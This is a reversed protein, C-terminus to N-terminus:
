PQAPASPCSEPVALTILVTRQVSSFNDDSVLMLNDTGDTSRYFTIGEMNDAGEFFTMKGLTAPKMVEGPKASLLVSLKLVKIKARPGHARSFAREVIFVRDGKSDVSMDTVEFDDEGQYVAIKRPQEGPTWRIVPTRRRGNQAEPILLYSGDPLAALSEFSGNKPFTGVASFDTLQEEQVLRNGQWRVRVVDDDAERSVAWDEGFPALGETDYRSKEQAPREIKSRRGGSFTMVSGDDNLAVEATLFHGADSLLTLDGSAPDFALASYGGFGRPGKLTHGSTLRMCGVPMGEPEIGTFPIAEINLDKGFLALTLVLTSIM